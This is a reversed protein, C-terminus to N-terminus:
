AAASTWPGIGLRVREANIFDVLAVSPRFYERGRELDDAFRALLAAEEARGGPLVLLVDRITLRYRRLRTPLNTSFGIKILGDVEVMYVVSGLESLANRVQRRRAEADTLPRSPTLRGTNNVRAKRQQM